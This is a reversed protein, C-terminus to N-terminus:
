LLLLQQAPPTVRKNKVEHSKKESPKLKKTAFKLSCSIKLSEM